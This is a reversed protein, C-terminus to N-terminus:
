DGLDTSLKEFTDWEVMEEYEGGDTRYTIKAQRSEDEEVEGLLM